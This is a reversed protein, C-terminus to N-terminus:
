ISESLFDLEPETEDNEATESPMQNQQSLLIERVTRGTIDPSFGRSILFRFLKERKKRMDKERVLLRLKGEAASLAAAYEDEPSLEELANTLIEEDIGRMRLKKRIVGKGKGCSNLYQVADGALLEDNLYGRNRCVELASDIEEPSYQDSNSLKNRLERTSLPRLALLDMAKELASKPM